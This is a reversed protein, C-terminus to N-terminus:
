SRNALDLYQKHLKLVSNSLDLLSISSTDILDNAKSRRTQRDVQSKVMSLATKMSVKDRTTLRELQIKEDVDIVLIRDCLKELNHEFLLPIVFIVYPFDSKLYEENLRDIIAPHMIENLKKLNNSNEKDFVKLRLCRRDLSGEETLIDQGFEETLKKLVKSGKEVVQRAIIDTDIIPVGHSKFLDSVVTKGCAIGGTLGIRLTKKKIGM